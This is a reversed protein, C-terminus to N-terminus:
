IGYSSLTPHFPATKSSEDPVATYEIYIFLSDITHSRLLEM